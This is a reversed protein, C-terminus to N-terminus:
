RFLYISIYDFSYSLFYFDLLLVKVDDKTSVLFWSIFVILYDESNKNNVQLLWLIMM